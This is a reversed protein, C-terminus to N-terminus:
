GPLASAKPALHRQNSDLRGSWKGGEPKDSEQWKGETAHVDAEVDDGAARDEAAPLPTLGRAQDFNAMAEHSGAETVALYTWTQSITTHGM